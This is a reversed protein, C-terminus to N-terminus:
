RWQRYDNCDEDSSEYACDKADSESTAATLRLQQQTKTRATSTGAMQTAVTKTGAVVKKDGINNSTATRTASATTATASATTPATPRQRSLRLQIRRFLSGHVFVMRQLFFFILIRWTSVDVLFNLRLKRYLPRCISNQTM